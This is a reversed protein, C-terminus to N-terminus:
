KVREYTRLLYEAHGIVWPHEIPLHFGTSGDWSEFAEHWEVQRAIEPYDNQLQALEKAWRDFTYDDIISDNLRYYICSHILMQIRRQKIIEAISRDM